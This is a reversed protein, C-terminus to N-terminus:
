KFRIYLISDGLLVFRVFNHPIPTEYNMLGAINKCALGRIYEYNREDYDEIDPVDSLSPSRDQLRHVNCRYSSFINQWNIDTSTVCDLSAPAINGVEKRPVVFVLVTAGEDGHLDRVM